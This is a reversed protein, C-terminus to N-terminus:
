TRPARRAIWRYAKKRSRIRSINRWDSVLAKITPCTTCANRKRMHHSNGVATRHPRRSIIPQLPRSHDLWFGYRCSANTICHTRDQRLGAVKLTRQYWPALLIEVVITAGVGSTAALKIMKPRIVLRSPGCNQRRLGLNHSHRERGLSYRHQARERM